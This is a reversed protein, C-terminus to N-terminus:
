VRHSLFDMLMSNFVPANEMTSLHGADPIYKIDSNRIQSHMFASKEIPTIQDDEGCVILAPININPLTDCMNRRGALAKLTKCVSNANAKLMQNKIELVLEPQHAVTHASVLKPLMNMVFNQLGHQEIDAIADFRNQKAEATDDTCQTDCLVIAHCREAYRQVFNLCVYGGMSLGIPIIHEVQLTKLLENLDDALLDITLDDTTLTSNGFGALDYTIIRFHESLTEVQAKWMEKTLPFGHIFVLAKTGMSSDTYSVIRGSPVLVNKNQMIKEVITKRIM